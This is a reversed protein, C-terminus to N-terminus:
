PPETLGHARLNRRLGALQTDRDEQSARELVAAASRTHTLLPRFRRWTPKKRTAGSLWRDLRADLASRQRSDEREPRPGHLLGPRVISDAGSM